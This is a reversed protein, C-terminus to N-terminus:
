RREALVLKLRGEALDQRILWKPLFTLGMRAAHLSAGDARFV